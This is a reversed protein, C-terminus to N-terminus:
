RLTALVLLVVPRCPWALRPQLTSDLTMQRGSVQKQRGELSECTMPQWTSGPSIYWYHLSVVHMRLLVRVPQPTYTLAWRATTYSANVVTFGKFEVGPSAPNAWGLM